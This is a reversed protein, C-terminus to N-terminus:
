HHSPPPIQHIKTPKPKIEPDMALVQRITDQSQNSPAIYKSLKRSQNQHLARRLHEEEM